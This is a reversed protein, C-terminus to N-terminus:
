MGFGSDLTGFGLDPALTEEEFVKLSLPPLPTGGAM